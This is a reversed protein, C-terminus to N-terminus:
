DGIGEDIELLRPYDKMIRRPREDGGGLRRMICLDSVFGTVAYNAVYNFDRLDVPKGIESELKDLVDKLMITIENTCRIAVSEWAGDEEFLRKAM